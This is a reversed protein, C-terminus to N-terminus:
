NRRKSCDHIDGTTISYPLWKGDKNSMEIDTNCYKCLRQYSIGKIIVSEQLPGKNKNSYKHVIEELKKKEEKSNNRLIEVGDMHKKIWNKQEKTPEEAIINGKENYINGVDKVDHREDSVNENENIDYVNL